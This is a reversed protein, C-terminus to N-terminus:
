FNNYKALAVRLNKPISKVRLEGSINTVLSHYTMACHLPESHDGHATFLYNFVVTARSLDEIWIYADIGQGYFIPRLFQQESRVVALHLKHEVLTAYSFGATELLGERLEEYIHFYNAHYLVGGIDFEGLRISLDTLKFASAPLLREGSNIENRPQQGM